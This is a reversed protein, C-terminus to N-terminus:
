LSLVQFVIRLEDRAKNYAAAMQKLEEATLAGNGKEAILAIERLTQVAPGSNPIEELKSKKLLVGISQPMQVRGIVIEDGAGSELFDVAQLMLNEMTATVDAIRLVVVGPPVQDDNFKDAGVAALPNVILLVSSIGVDSLFQRRNRM